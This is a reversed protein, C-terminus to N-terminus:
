KTNVMVDDEVFFHPREDFVKKIEDFLMWRGKFGEEQPYQEEEGRIWERLIEKLDSIHLVTWTCPFEFTIKVLPVKNTPNPNDKWLAIDKINKPM